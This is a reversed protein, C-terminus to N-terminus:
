KKETSRIFTSKKRFYVFILAFIICVFFIYIAVNLIGPSLKESRSLIIYYAGSWNYNGNISSDKACVEIKYIENNPYSSINEWNFFWIEDGELAMTANFLSTSINSIQVIVNGSLPPNDDSVNVIIEYFDKKVMQEILNDIEYQNLIIEGQTGVDLAARFLANMGKISNAKLYDDYEDLGIGLLECTKEITWITFKFTYNKNNVKIIM